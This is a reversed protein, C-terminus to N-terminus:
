SGGCRCMTSGAEERDATMLLNMKTQDVETAALESGTGEQMAVVRVVEEL